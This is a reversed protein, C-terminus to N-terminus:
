AENELFIEGKSSFHAWSAKPKCPRQIGSIVAAGWFVWPLCQRAWNILWDHWSSLGFPWAQIVPGERLVQTPFFGILTFVHLDNPHHLSQRSPPLPSKGLISHQASMNTNVKSSFFVQSVNIKQKKTIKKIHFEAGSLGLLLFSAENSYYWKWIGWWIHKWFNKFWFIINKFANKQSKVLFFSLM